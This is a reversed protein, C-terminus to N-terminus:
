GADTVRQLLLPTSLDIHHANCADFVADALEADIERLHRIDAVFVYLTYEVAYDRFGTIRAYPAPAALIRPVRAAAALLVRKVENKDYAYGPTVTITRRIPANRGYNEIEVKLLEQNPISVLVNDLTRLKTYILEIGEVDAFQGRFAIRDGVAFPKSIMVILGALANGITNISAFGLVTGGVIALFGSIVAFTVGFQSMIGSVVLLATGWKVIRDLTYALHRSLTGQERLKAIQRSVVRYVVYGLIAMVASFGISSLNAVVWAGLESLLDVVSM